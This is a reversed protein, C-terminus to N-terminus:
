VTLAASEYDESRALRLLRRCFSFGKEQKWYVETSKRTVRRANASHSGDRALWGDVDLTEGYKLEDKTAEDANVDASVEVEAKGPGVTRNLLAALGAEVQTEYRAQVTQKSVGSGAGAGTMSSRATFTHTISGADVVPMRVTLAVNMGLVFWVNTICFPLRTSSVVAYLVTGTAELESQNM